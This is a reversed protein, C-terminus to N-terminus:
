SKKCTSLYIVWASNCDVKQRIKYNKGTSTSKFTAGEKIVPCSVRCHNCKSCGVEPPSPNVDRSGKFGGVLRQLNKPQKTSIQIRDGMARAKENRALLPKCERVWKHIPPNAYNHTFLLRSSWNEAMKQELGILHRDVLESPYNREEFKSKLPQPLGRWWEWPKVTHFVRKVTCPTTLISIYIYSNTPLSWM